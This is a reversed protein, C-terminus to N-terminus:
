LRVTERPPMACDCRVRAMVIRGKTVCIWEDYSLTLWPEETPASVVVKAISIRDDSSAVNGALEDIKLLGTDVVTNAAGVVKVTM